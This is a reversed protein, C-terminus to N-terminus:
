GTKKKGEALISGGKERDLPVGRLGKGAGIKKSFPDKGEKCLGRRGGRKMEVPPVKKKGRRTLHFILSGGGRFPARKVWTPIQQLAGLPEGKKGRKIALKTPCGRKQSFLPAGGEKKNFGNDGREPASAWHKEAEEWLSTAIVAIGKQWPLKGRKENERVGGLGL